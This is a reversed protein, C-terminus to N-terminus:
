FRNLWYWWNKPKFMQLHKINKNGEGVQKPMQSYYVTVTYSQPIVGDSIELSAAHVRWHHKWLGREGHGCVQRSRWFFYGCQPSLDAAFNTFTLTAPIYGGPEIPVNSSVHQHPAMKRGCGPPWIFVLFDIALWKDKPNNLTESQYSKKHRFNNSSTFSCSVILILCSLCTRGRTDEFSIVTRWFTKLQNPQYM